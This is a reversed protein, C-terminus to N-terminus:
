VIKHWNVSSLSLGAEKRRIPAQEARHLLQRHMPNAGVLARFERPLFSPGDLSFGMAYSVFPEFCRFAHQVTRDTVAVYHGLPVTDVFATAPITSQAGRSASAM